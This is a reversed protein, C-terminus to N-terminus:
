KFPLGGQRKENVQALSKRGTKSEIMGLMGAFVVRKESMKALVRVALAVDNACCTAFNGTM